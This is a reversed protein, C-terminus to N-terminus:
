AEFFTTEPAYAWDEDQLLGTKEGTSKFFLDDLRVQYSCRNEMARGNETAGEVVGPGCSKVLEQLERKAERNARANLDFRAPVRALVAGPLRLNDESAAVAVLLVTLSLFIGTLTRM